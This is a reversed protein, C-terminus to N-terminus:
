VGASRTLDLEKFNLAVGSMLFRSLSLPPLLFFFALKIRDCPCLSSPVTADVSLHEQRSFLLSFAAPISKSVRAKVRHLRQQGTAPPPGGISGGGRGWGPRRGQRTATTAGRVQGRQGGGYGGPPAHGRWLSRALTKRVSRCSNSYHAQGM